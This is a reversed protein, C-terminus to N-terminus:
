PMVIYKTERGNTKLRLFAPLQHWDADNRNYLGPPGNLPVRGSHIVVDQNGVRDEGKQQQERYHTLCMVIGSSREDSRKILLPQDAPLFRCYSELIQELVCFLIGEANDYGVEAPTDFAVKLLM